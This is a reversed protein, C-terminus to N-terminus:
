SSVIVEVEEQGRVRRLLPIGLHVNMLPATEATLLLDLRNLALIIIREMACLWGDRISPNYSQVSYATVIEQVLVAERAVSDM